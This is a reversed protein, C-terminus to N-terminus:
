LAVGTAADFLRIRATDPRLHVAQGPRWDRREATVACVTVGGLQSYLQVTAGMHEVALVRAPVGQGNAIVYAEPRFGYVVERGEALPVALPLLKGDATEVGSARARGPALNMAPLGIFGAVFLNAPRDYLELPTGAQEVRGERLVVIRDAMAMAETQDHTVYLSTTGLRRHLSKLETRM